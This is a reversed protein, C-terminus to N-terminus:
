RLEKPWPRAKIPMKRVDLEGPLKEAFEKDHKANLRRVAARAKQWKTFARSLRTEARELDAHAKAIKSQKM